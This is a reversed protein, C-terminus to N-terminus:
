AVAKLTITIETAGDEFYFEEADATYGEPMFMFSVKYGEDQEVNFTAVGNADTKGPLCSDKCIQVMADAIPNGDEDVVTVKYGAQVEDQKSETQEATSPTTAATTEAGNSTEGCACLSLAMCLVLILTLISKMNKM